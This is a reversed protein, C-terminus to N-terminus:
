GQGPHFADEVLCLQSSSYSAEHKMLEGGAMREIEIPQKTKREM